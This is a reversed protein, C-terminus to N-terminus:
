ITNSKVMFLIKGSTITANVPLMGMITLATLTKGSGSQGVIGLSMGKCVSFNIDKLIHETGKQTHIYLNLDEVRLIEEKNM